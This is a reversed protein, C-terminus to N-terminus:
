GVLILTWTGTIPTQGTLDVAFTEADVAKPLVNALIGHDDQNYVSWNVYQAGLTHVATFIDSSLDAEVFHFVQSRTASRLFVMDTVDILLPAAPDARSLTWASGANTDGEQVRVTVGFEIESDTSMDNRRVAPVQDQAVYIGNEIPDTQGVLLVGDGSQMRVGNVMSGERLAAIDRNTDQVVRVPNLWQSPLKISNAKVALLRNLTADDARAVSFQITHPGAMGVADGETDIGMQHGVPVIHNTDPLIGNTGGLSFAFRTKRSTPNDITAPTINTVFTGPEHPDVTNEVSIGQVVLPANFEGLLEALDFRGVPGLVTYSIIGTEPDVVGTEPTGEFLTFGDLSEPGTVNIRITKYSIGSM